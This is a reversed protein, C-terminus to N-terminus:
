PTAVGYKKETFSYKNGKKKIIFLRDYVTEPLDGAVVKKGALQNAIDDVTNSHGAVLTNGKGSKLRNVFAATSDAQPAYTQVAVGAQEALPTVTSKTRKYNTSYIHRIKKGSLAEKLALAREQGAASLAPDSAEMRSMGQRAPEKEAHRVIYYTQSCSTCFLVAAFLVYKM